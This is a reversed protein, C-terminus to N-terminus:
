QLPISGRRPQLSPSEQVNVRDKCIRTEVLALGGQPDEAEETDDDDNNDEVILEDSDVGREHWAQCCAKLAEFQACPM